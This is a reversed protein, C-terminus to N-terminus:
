KLLQKGSAEQVQVDQTPPVQPSNAEIGPHTKRLANYRDKVKEYEITNM